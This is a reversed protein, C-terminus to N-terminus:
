ARPAHRAYAVLAAIAVLAGLGSFIPISLQLVGAQAADALLVAVASVSLAALHFPVALVLLSWFFRPEDRDLWAGLVVAHAFALAIAAPLSRALNLLDVIFAGSLLAPAISGILYAGALLILLPQWASGSPRLALLGAGVLLLGALDVVFAIDSMLRTEASGLRLPQLAARLVVALAVLSLGGFLLPHRRPAGPIRALLGAPILVTVVATVAFLSGAVLLSADPTGVLAMLRLAGIVFLVASGAGLWRSQRSVALWGLAAAEM